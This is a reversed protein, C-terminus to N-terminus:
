ACQLDTSGTSARLQIVTADHSASPRSARRPLTACLGQALVTLPDTPSSEEVAGVAEVARRLSCDTLLSVLEALRTARVGTEQATPELTTIGM